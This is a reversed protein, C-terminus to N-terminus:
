IIAQTQGLLELTAKLCGFYTLISFIRLLLLCGGIFDTLPKVGYTQDPNGVLVSPNSSLMDFFTFHHRCFCM